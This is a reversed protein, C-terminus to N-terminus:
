DPANPHPKRLVWRYWWRTVGTWFIFAYLWAAISVSAVLGGVLRSPAFWAVVAVWAMAPVTWSAIDIWPREDYRWILGGGLPFLAIAVLQWPTAALLWGAVLLIVAFTCLVAVQVRDPWRAPEFV